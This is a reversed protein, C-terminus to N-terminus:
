QIAEPMNIEAGLSMASELKSTDVAKVKYCYSRGAKATSDNYNTSSVKGLMSVRNCASGRYVEYNAIDNNINPAWSITVKDAEMNAIVSRPIDPLRKTSASVADGILGEVKYTNFSAIKYQFEIGDELKSFFNGDDTYTTQNASFTDLKDLKGNEGIKYLNYGGVDPDTTREWTLVVQKVLGSEAFLTPAQPLNKTAATVINTSGLVHSSPVVTQLVLQYEYQTQDVLNQNDVYDTRTANLTGLRQWNGGIERRNIIVAVNDRTKDWGLQIKRLLNQQLVNLSVTKVNQIDDVILAPSRLNDADVVSIKYEPNAYSYLDKDLYSTTSASVSALETWENEFPWKREIKVQILDTEDGLSWQLEISSENAVVSIDKPRTPLKKSAGKVVKGIYGTAGFVNKSAIAYEYEVGHQISAISSSISKNSELMSDTYTSVTVDDIQAISVLQSGAQSIDKRFIVYHAISEDKVVQWSLTIKEPLNAQLTLETPAPINKTTSSVINSEALKKGALWAEIKVFYQQDDILDKEDVYASQTLKTLEAVLALNQAETGRYVKIEAPVSANKWALAVKRLMGTQPVWLELPLTVEVEAENGASSESTLGDTDTLVIRYKISAGSILQSDIYNTQDPTVVTVQEYVDGDFSREIQVKSIDEVRTNSPLEWTLEIGEETLMASLSELASPPTKTTVLVAKSAPGSNNYKNISAVSYYYSTNDLLKSQDTYETAMPDNVEGIRTLTLENDESNPARFVSYGTVDPDPNVQWSLVAKRALGSAGKVQEPPLLASKSKVILPKSRQTEGFDDYVSVAYEFSKGEEQINTDIYSQTQLGELEILPQWNQTNDARRYVRYGFGSNAAQWALSIERLTSNSLLLLSPASAPTYAIAETIQGKEDASFARVGYYVTSNITQPRDDSLTLKEISAQSSSSGQNSSRKNSLALSGVVQWEEGTARRVLEYGIIPKNVNEASPFFALSLGSVRQTVDVITPVQLDSKVSAQIAISALKESRIEEGDDDIMSLQYYFIGSDNGPNDKASLEAESTIYSFPGQESTSRFVNFGLYSMNPDTLSWSLSVLGDAYEATINSVWDVGLNNATNQASVKHLAIAETLSEGIYTSQLAIQAQNNFTFQLEGVSAGEVPSVVEVNAVIQQEERSVQGIIVYNLNLVTAAKIAEQASFKQDIDNRSLAVELERQNIVILHPAKRLENRVIYSVDDELGVVDITTAVFQFVGISSQDQEQAYSINCWLVVSAAIILRLRHFLYLVERM